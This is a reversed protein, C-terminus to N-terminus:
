RQRFFHSSNTFFPVCINASGNTITPFYITPSNSLLPAGIVVAGRIVTASYVTSSNQFLSPSVVVAGAAGAPSYFVISNDLRAPAVYQVVPPAASQFYDAILIVGAQENDWADSGGSLGDPKGINPFPVAM